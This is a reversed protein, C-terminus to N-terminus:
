FASSLQHGYINNQAHFVVENNFNQGQRYESSAYAANYIGINRDEYNNIKNNNTQNLNNRPIKNALKIKKDEINSNVKKSNQSSKDSKKFKHHPNKEKTFPTSIDSSSESSSTNPVQLIYGPRAITTCNLDSDYLQESQLGFNSINALKDIKNENKNLNLKDKFIGCCILNVFDSWTLSFVTRFRYKNDYLSMDFHSNNAFIKPNAKLISLKRKLLGLKITNQIIIITFMFINTGLLIGCIVFAIILNSYHRCQSVHECNHQALKAAKKNLNEQINQNSQNFFENIKSNNYIISTTDVISVTTSRIAPTVLGNLFNKKASKRTSGNRQCEYDNKSMVPLSFSVCQKEFAVTETVDMYIILCILYSATDKRLLNVLKFKTQNSDIFKSSYVRLTKDKRNNMKEESSQFTQISGSNPELYERVVVQYGFIKTDMEKTKTKLRSNPQIKWNLRVNSCEQSVLILKLNLSTDPIEDLKTAIINLDNILLNNIERTAHLIKVCFLIKVLFVLSNLNM